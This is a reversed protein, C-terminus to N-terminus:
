GGTLAEDFRRWSDTLDLVARSARAEDMKIATLGAALADVVTTQRAGGQWPDASKFLDVLFTSIALAKAEGM